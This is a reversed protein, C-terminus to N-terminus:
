EPPFEEPLERNELAYHIRHIAIRVDTKKTIDGASIAARLDALQTAAWRCLAEWTPPTTGEPTLSKFEWVTEPHGKEGDRKEDTKRLQKRNTLNTMGRRLSTLEGHKQWSLKAYVERPTFGEDPHEAFFKLIVEEQKKAKGDRRNVEEPEEGTTNHYSDAM